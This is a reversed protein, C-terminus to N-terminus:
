KKGAAKIYPMIEQLTVPQKKDELEIVVVYGDAGGAKKLADVLKQQNSEIRKGDIPSWIEKTSLCGVTPTHPYFSQNKYYAPNVTTGHAIIESRGALGAYFSQYM